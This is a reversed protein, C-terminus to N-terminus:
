AEDGTTMKNTLYRLIDRASVVGCLGGDHDLIPIHRYGCFVGVKRLTIRSWGGVSLNLEVRNEVIRTGLGETPM